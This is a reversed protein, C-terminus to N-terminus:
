GNGGTLSSLLSMFMDGYFLYIIDLFISLLFPLLVLMLRKATEKQRNIRECAAALETEDGLGELMDPTVPKVSFGHNLFIVAVTLVGSVIYYVPMIIPIGGIPLFQVIILAEYLVFAALTSVLILLARAYNFRRPKAKVEGAPTLEAPSTKKHKKKQKAM